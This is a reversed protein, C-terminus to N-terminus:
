RRPKRLRFGAVVVGVRRGGGLVPRRAVPALRELQEASIAGIEVLAHILAPGSAREGGDEIRVAVGIGEELIAACHLAEAGVKSVVGPVETMLLTDSRDRGAVLYPHSRMAAVARAATAAYPGLREPRVLRAFLTAMARLTVGHVPAGCGDVGVVPRDVGTARRLAGIIERQLPHGPYLYTELEWGSRASAVLMGAHKGSCNHQIRAAGAVRRAERPLAPFAPPCGLASVKVGGRRLLRRVAALHVPEANHSGCMIAVLDEPLEEGIRRLSVAAQLPKTSSRAFLVRDPDGLGALLRGDADCVAVHGTHVSEVLGSRVVRVLPVASPM